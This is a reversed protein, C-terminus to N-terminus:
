DEDTGEGLVWTRANERWVTDGLAILGLAEHTRSGENAGFTTCMEGASDYYTGIFVWQSPMGAPDDGLEGALIGDQFAANLRQAFKDIDSVSVTERGRV